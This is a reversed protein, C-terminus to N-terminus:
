KLLRRDYEDKAVSLLTALEQNSLTKVREKSLEDFTPESLGFRYTNKKISRSVWSPVSHNTLYEKFAARLTNHWGGDCVFEVKLKSNLKSLAKVRGTRKVFPDQPACFAFAATHKGSTDGKEPRSIAVTLYGKGKNTPFVVYGYKVM